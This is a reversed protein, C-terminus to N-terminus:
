DLGGENKVQPDPSTIYRADVTSRAQLEFSVGVPNDQTGATNAFSVSVSSDYNATESSAPQTQGVPSHGSIVDFGLLQDFDCMRTALAPNTNIVANFLQFQSSSLNYVVEWSGSGQKVTVSGTAPDLTANEVNEGSYVWNYGSRTAAQDIHVNVNFLNDPATM